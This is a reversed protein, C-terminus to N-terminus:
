RGDNEMLPKNADLKKRAEAVDMLVAKVSINTQSNNIQVDIDNDWNIVGLKGLAELLAKAAEIMLKVDQSRIAIDLARSLAMIAKFKLPEGQVFKKAIYALANAKDKGACALSVGYLDKLQTPSLISPDPKMILMRVMESRREIATYKKKSKSKAAYVDEWVADEGIKVVQYSKKKM